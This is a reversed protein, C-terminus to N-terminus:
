GKESIQNRGADLVERVKRALSEGAFPKPFFVFDDPKAANVVREPEFGSVAIARLQPRSQCLKRILERGNMGPMVMDAIVLDITRDHAADVRLAEASDRAILVRYGYKRLVRQASRRIQEDDEVLLVTERGKRPPESDARQGASCEKHHAGPLWVTVRTGRGRETEVEVSGEAQEVIRQVTALGLGNGRGANKTTFFPEFLHARTEPDMGCGDDSVSLEVGTRDISGNRRRGRRTQITIQGGDPLADRSNLVLNLIVQQIQTRDCLVSAIGSSLVTRLVINEGILRTLLNRMGGVVQNLDVVGPEFPHQRVMALLQQILAAGQEGALRIEQVHGQLRSSGDLGAGILDAYLAIATLLNNFDHSVGGVLRGLAEMKQAERLEEEAARQATIDEVLGIAFEPRSDPGRILSVTLKMWAETGNKRITRLEVQYHDRKGAVMEAFLEVDADLHSPHRFDRFHRGRLEDPAYGLMREVAPNSEVIQGDLKWQLIGIASADFIARYRKISDRVVRRREQTSIDRASLLLFVEHGSRFESCSSEMLIHTGDKRRGQFQCGPYGCGERRTLSRQRNACRHGVPLLESLPKGVIEQGSAYGFLRAFSTNAYWICSQRVLAVSEPCSRFADRFVGDDAASAQERFTAATSM